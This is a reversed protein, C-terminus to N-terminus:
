RAVEARLPEQTPSAMSGPAELRLTRDFRSGLGADHSVCVLAAGAQKCSEVILDMAAAANEPDLSATPEDALVLSPGCALARAVAVRQRQGVSLAEVKADHREIGLRTLLEKARSAHEAKPVSSYLLAALVNEIASFGQLLNFTQFIMGINTARFGDRAAGSLSHVNTGNVHITGKTPEDLGAVLTLLTSKGAGSKAAILVRERSAVEFDPALLDFREQGSIDRAKTGRYRFRVGKVVLPKTADRTDQTTAMTLFGKTLGLM